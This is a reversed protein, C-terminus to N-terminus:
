RCMYVLGGLWYGAIGVYAMVFVGILLARPISIM